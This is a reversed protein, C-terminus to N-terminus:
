QPINYSKSKMQVAQETEENIGIEDSLAIIDHLDLEEGIMEENYKVSNQGHLIDLKQKLEKRFTAIIQENRKDEKNSLIHIQHQRLEESFVFSDDQHNLITLHNVFLMSVVFVWVGCQYSDAQM